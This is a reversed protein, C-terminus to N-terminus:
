EEEKAFVIKADRHCPVPKPDTEWCAQCQGLSEKVWEEMPLKRRCTNCLFGEDVLLPMYPQFIRFRYDMVVGHASAEFAAM